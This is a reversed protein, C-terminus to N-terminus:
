KGSLFNYGGLLMCEQLRFKIKRCEVTPYIIWFDHCASNEVDLIRLIPRPQDHLFGLPCQFHIKTKFSHAIKVFNGLQAYGQVERSCRGM